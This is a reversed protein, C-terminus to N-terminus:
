QVSQGLGDGPNVGTLFWDVLDSPSRTTTEPGPIIYARGPDFCEPGQTLPNLCQDHHWAGLVTDDVGDGDVDGAGSVSIGLQDGVQPQSEGVITAARIEARSTNGTFYVASGNDDPGALFAGVVFDALGDANIDGATAVASGFNDGAAAGNLDRSFNSVGSSNGFYWSVVGSDAGVGDRLLGGVLLDAFGDGDTDGAGSVTAGFEDEPSTGTLVVDAREAGGGSLWPGGFFVYARGADKGAAPDVGFDYGRAGVVLDDYGDGNVDGPGAVRLGFEDGGRCASAGNGPILTTEGTLVVDPIEDMESRLGGFFVYVRGVIPLTSTGGGCQATVAVRHAGVAVDPFGDGNVDGVGAVSVGFFGQAVEGRFILAPTSAPTPGGWYLYAAGANDNDSERRDATWAGVLLDVYGDGDIDGAKAVAGGFGTSRGQGTLVADSLGEPDPGGRYLYAAGAEVDARDDGPVGVLVDAYGDGTVDGTTSGIVVKRTLGYSTGCSDTAGVRWYYIGDAPAPTTPVFQTGIAVPASLIVATGFAPSTSLEFVYTGSLPTQTWSFGRGWEIARGDLPFVSRPLAACASSFTVDVLVPDGENGAADVSTIALTNLGQALTADYTWTTAPSAASIRRGNLRVFSGAEKTGTITVPNTASTTPGVATPPNPPSTDRQVTVRLSESLAGLDDMTEFVFTNPGEAALDVDVTWLTRDNIPVRQVGDVIIAMGTSKTGAVTIRDQHTVAPLAGIVPASPGPTGGLPQCSILAALCVCVGGIIDFGFRSRVFHFLKEREM